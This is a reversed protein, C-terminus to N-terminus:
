SAYSIRKIIAKYLPKFQCIFSGNVSVSWGTRKDIGYDKDYHFATKGIEIRIKTM